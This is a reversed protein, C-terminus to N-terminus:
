DCYEGYATEYGLWFLLRPESVTITCYFYGPDSAKIVVSGEDKNKDLYNVLRKTSASNLYYKFEM